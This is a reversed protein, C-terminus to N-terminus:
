QYAKHLFTVIEARTCRKNPDFRNNGAGSTIQNEVAWSIASDYIQNGTMDSFMAPTSPQPKGAAAWLFTVAQVRTCPATTGFKGGGIGGTVGKEVAWSIASRFAALTPMDSFAAASTPDPKGESAWIFTMIEARTCTDNPKFTTTSGKGSTIGNQVAWQVSSAFWDKERVDTFASPVPTPTADPTPTETPKPTPEETPEPVPTPPEAPEPTPEETPEPSPTPEETPEPTPEETPGPTPTRVAPPIPYSPYVPTPPTTPPATPEGTVTIEICASNGNGLQVLVEASGPGVATIAGNEVTVVAPDTSIWAYETATNEPVIVPNGANTTEGAEITLTSQELSVSSVVGNNLYEYLACLWVLVERQTIRKHPSFTEKETTFVGYSDLQFIPSVFWGTIPVDSFRINIDDADTSAKGSVAWLIAAAEARTLQGQPGFVPSEPARYGMYGKEMAWQIMVRRATTLETCDALPLEENEQTLNVDEGAMGLLLPPFDARILAQGLDNADLYKLLGYKDAQARILEDSPFVPEAPSDGSSNNSLPADAFGMFPLAGLLLCVALLVSLVKKM